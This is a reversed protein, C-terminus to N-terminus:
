SRHSAYCRPIVWADFLHQGWRGLKLKTSMLPCQQETTMTSDTKATGSRELALLIRRCVQKLSRVPTAWKPTIDTRDLLEEPLSPGLPKLSPLTGDHSKAAGEEVIQNLKLANACEIARTTDDLNTRLLKGIRQDQRGIEVFRCSSKSAPGNDKWGTPTSFNVALAGNARRNQCANPKSCAEISMAPPM